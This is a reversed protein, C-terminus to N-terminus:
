SRHSKKQFEVLEKVPIPQTIAPKLTTQAHILSPLMAVAFFLKRNM